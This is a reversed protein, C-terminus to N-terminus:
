VGMDELTESKEALDRVNMKTGDGKYDSEGGSDQLPKRDPIGADSKTDEVVAKRMDESKGTWFRKNYDSQKAAGALATDIPGTAVKAANGVTSGIAKAAPKLGEGLGEGVPKAAGEAAGMGAAALAPNMKRIPKRTMMGSAAESWSKGLKDDGLEDVLKSLTKLVAIGIEDPSVGTPNGLQSLIKEGISYASENIAKGAYPHNMLSEFGGGQLASPLWKGLEAYKDEVPDIPKQSVQPQQLQDRNQVMDKEEIWPAEKKIMNIAKNVSDIAKRLEVPKKESMPKIEGKKLSQMLAGSNGPLVPKNMNTPTLQTSMPKIMKIPKVSGIGPKRGSGIGGHEIKSKNLSKVDVGTGRVATKYADLTPNKARRAILKKKPSLGLVEKVKKKAPEGYKRKLGGMIESSFTKRKRQPAVEGPRARGSAIADLRARQEAPTSPQATPAIKPKRKLEQIGHGILAGEVPHGVLMGAGLGTLGGAWGKIVKEVSKEIKQDFEANSM